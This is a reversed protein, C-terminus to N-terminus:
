GIDVRQACFGGVSCVVSSLLYRTSALTAGGHFLGDLRTPDHRGLEGCKGSGFEHQMLCTCLKVCSTSAVSMARLTFMSVLHM